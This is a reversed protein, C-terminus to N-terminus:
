QKVTQGKWSLFLKSAKSGFYVNTTVCIKECVYWGEDVIFHNLFCSSYRKLLISIWLISCELPFYLASLIIMKELENLRQQRIEFSNSQKHKECQHRLMKQPNQTGYSISICHEGNLQIVSLIILRKNYDSNKQGM